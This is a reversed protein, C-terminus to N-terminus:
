KEELVFKNCDQCLLMDFYNDHVMDDIFHMENCSECMELENEISYSNDKKDKAYFDWKKPYYTFSQRKYSENSYWAGNDWKGVNENLIYFQGSVDM